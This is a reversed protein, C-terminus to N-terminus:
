IFYHEVLMLLVSRADFEQVLNDAEALFLRLVHMIIAKGFGLEFDHMLDVAM